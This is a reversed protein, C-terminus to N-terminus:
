VCPADEASVEETGLDLEDSDEEDGRIISINSVASEVEGSKKIKGYLIDLAKDIDATSSILIEPNLNTLKKVSDLTSIDEPDEMVVVISNDSKNLAIIKKEKAFDESLLATVDLDSRLIEEIEIARHGMQQSYANILDNENVFGLKLLVPGLKENSNKQESLAKNLDEQSISENHVLIDGIRQFQPNFNSM